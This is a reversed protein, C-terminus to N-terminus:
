PSYGVKYPPRTMKQLAHLAFIAIYFAGPKMLVQTCAHGKTSFNVLCAKPIEVQSPLIKIQIKAVKRCMDRSMPGELETLSKLKLLIRLKARKWTVYYVTHCAKAASLSFNNADDLLSIVYNVIVEKCNKDSENSMTRCFGAVWQGMTLQNCTVREKINGSLM